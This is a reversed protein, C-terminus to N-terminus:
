VEKEFILDIEHVYGTGLQKTPIWGVYRWSSEAKKDIIFRYNEIIYIKDSSLGWGGVGCSITEYEYKYM